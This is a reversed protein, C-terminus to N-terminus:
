CRSVTLHISSAAHVYGFHVISVNSTDRLTTITIDIIIAVAAFSHNITYRTNMVIRVITNLDALFLLQKRPRYTKIFQLDAMMVKGFM